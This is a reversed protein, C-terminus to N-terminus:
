RVLGSLTAAVQAREADDAEWSARFVSIAVSKTYLIDGDDTEPEPRAPKKFLEMNMVAVAGDKDKPLTYLFQFAAPTENRVYVIGAMEDWAYPQYNISLGCGAPLMPEGDLWRKRLEGVVKVTFAAADPLYKKSSPFGSRLEDMRLGVSSAIAPIGHKVARAAGAVTGSNFQAVGVNPGDNVGSIVLDPAAGAMLATLAFIVCDSPTGDFSYVNEAIKRYAVPPGMKANIATGVGSQNTAPGVLWAEYGAQKLADFLLNIGPADYGDDNVVLVRMPRRASQRATAGQAFANFTAIMICASVLLMSKRSM